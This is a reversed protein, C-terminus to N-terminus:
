NLKNSGTYCIDITNDKNGRNGLEGNLETKYVSHENRM